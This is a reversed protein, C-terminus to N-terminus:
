PTENKKFAKGSFINEICPRVIDAAEELWTANAQSWNGHIVMDSREKIKPWHKISTKFRDTFFNGQRCFTIIFELGPEREGKNNQKMLEGWLKHQDISWVLSREILARVLFTAATPFRIHDVRSIEDSVIILRNDTIPQPCVFGKFFM